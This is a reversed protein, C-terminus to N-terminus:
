TVSLTRNLDIFRIRETCRPVLYLFLGILLEKNSCIFVVTSFNDGYFRCIVMSPTTLNM